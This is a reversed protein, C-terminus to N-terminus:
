ELVWEGSRRIAAHMADPALDIEGPWTVVGDEVRVQNFAETDRLRGFVGAEPSFVLAAMHVSGTLGDAFRVDLRHDPRPDVHTVRWPMTTQSPTLAASRDQQADAQARM